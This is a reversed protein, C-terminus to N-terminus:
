KVEAKSFERAKLLINTRKAAAGGRKMPRSAWSASAICIRTKDLDMGNVIVNGKLGKLLNIFYGSAKIPYRAPQGGKGHPIEGKYPIARKYLIVQNLEEIAKDVPKNKIFTCIYMSHKKSIPLSSGRAVAEEKKVKSKEDKKKEKKKEEAEPKKELAKEEQAKTEVVEEKEQKVETTTKQKEDTM